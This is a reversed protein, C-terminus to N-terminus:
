VIGNFRVAEAEANMRADEDDIIGPEGALRTAYTEAQVLRVEAFFVDLRHKAAWMAAECDAVANGAEILQRLYRRYADSRRARHDLEDRTVGGRGLSEGARLAAEEEEKVAVSLAVKRGHEMAHYTAKARGHARTAGECDAILQWPDLGTLHSLRTIM